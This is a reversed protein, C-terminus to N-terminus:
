VDETIGHEKEWKTLQILCSCRAVTRQSFKPDYPVDVFGSGRCQPCNHYQNLLMEHYAKQDATLFDKAQKKKM